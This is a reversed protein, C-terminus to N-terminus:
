RRRRKVLVHGRSTTLRSWAGAEFLRVPDDEALFGLTEGAFAVGAPLDEEGPIPRGWVEARVRRVIADGSATPVAAGVEAIGERAARRLAAVDLDALPAWGTRPPSVAAWATAQVEFPVEVTVPPESASGAESGILRTVRELRQVLSRIPVVIDIAAETVLRFTRLGLVTPVTDLLGVPYLVATYVALV